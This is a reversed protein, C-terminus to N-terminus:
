KQSTGEVGRNLREITRSHLYMLAMETYHLARENFDNKFPGAQFSRLRDIIIALLVEHSIGNIGFEQVPGNQFAIDALNVIAQGEEHDQWGEGLATISYVHNAGGQGPEDLVTITLGDNLGNVKHDTIKRM